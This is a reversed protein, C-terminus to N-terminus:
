LKTIRKLSERQRDIFETQLRENSGTMLVSYKKLSDIWVKHFATVESNITMIPGGQYIWFYSVIEDRIKVYATNSDINLTSYYYSTRDGNGSTGTRISRETLDLLASIDERILALEEITILRRMYFYEIEQVIGSFFNHDLIFTVDTKYPTYRLIEDHLSNIDDPMELQSFSFYMSAKLTQHMWKYYYFKFLYKYGISFVVFLRNMTNISEEMGSQSASIILDRYHSLMRYFTEHGSVYSESQLLFIAQKPNNYGIIEDISLNLKKSLVSLENLNFPIEGKIRRYASQTSIGLIDTLFDNIRINPSLGELIKTIIIKNLNESM